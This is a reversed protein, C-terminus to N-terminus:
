VIQINTVGKFLKGDKDVKFIYNTLGVEVFVILANSENDRAFFVKKIVHRLMDLINMLGITEGATLKICKKFKDM